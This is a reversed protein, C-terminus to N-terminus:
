ETVPARALVGGFLALPVVFLTAIGSTALAAREGWHEAIMGGVSAGIMAAGYFSMQYLATVRSKTETTATLQVTASLSTLTAIWGLGAVFFCPAAAVLTAARSALTIAAGFTAIGASVTARAGFRARVRKLALGSLIAGAGLASLMAGYGSATTELAHKAFAPLIAMVIMAATAFTGSTIFTGRLAPTQWVERFPDAFALVLSASRSRPRALESARRVEDYRFLVWFVALFSVANVVFTVEAGTSALLLGGLAPGVVRAINFSISGLTIAETMQSKPVLEPVLTVWAPAGIAIAAGLLASFVLLVSPSMAHMRIAVAPGVAAVAAAGQSFLLIRRRDHRDGFLGAPLTLALTPALFCTALMAVLRPDRSMSLMVWSEGVDQVWAGVFSFIAALWL